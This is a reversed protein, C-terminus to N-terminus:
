PFPAPSPSPSHSQSRSDGASRGGGPGICSAGGCDVDAGDEAMGFVNLLVWYVMHLILQFLSLTFLADFRSHLCDEGDDIAKAGLGFSAWIVGNLIFEFARCPPGTFKQVVKAAPALKTILDILVTNFFAATCTLVLSNANVLTTSPIGMVSDLLTFSIAPGVANWSAAGDCSGSVRSGKDINAGAIAMRIIFLVLNVICLVLGLCGAPVHIPQKHPGVLVIITKVKGSLAM